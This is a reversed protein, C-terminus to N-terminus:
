LMNYIILIIILIAFAVLLYLVLDLQQQQKKKKPDPKKVATPATTKAPVPQVPATKAPATKVPTTSVATKAPTTPAVKAPTPETWTSAVPTQLWDPLKEPEAQPKPQTKSTTPPPTTSPVYGEAVMWSPVTDGQAQADFDRPDHSVVVPPAVATEIKTVPESVPTAAPVATLRALQYQALEHHPDLSLVKNLYAVQKPESDVLNSLLFWAQVEGPNEKLVDTLLLQADRKNGARTSVIAQQLKQNM